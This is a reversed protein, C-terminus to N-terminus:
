FLTENVVVTDGDRLRVDRVQGDLIRKLDVKETNPKEGYSRHILLVAHPNAMRTLGGAAAVADLLGGGPGLNVRGPQNVQGLVNVTFQYPPNVMAPSAAAPQGSVPPQQAPARILPITLVVATALLAKPNM